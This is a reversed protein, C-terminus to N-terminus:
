KLIEYIKKIDLNQRMLRALNKFETEQYSEMNIYELIPTLGKLERLKNLFKRTFKPSDFLGHIYTGIINDKCILTFDEEETVSYKSAEGSTVGQHIECGSVVIGDFGELIGTCNCLTKSIQKTFKKEKMTTTMPFINLTEAKLFSSEIQKLDKISKGLMQFGSHIGLIPTGKKIYEMIKDTIKRTNIISFDYIANKSGPLIILDFDQNLDEKTNIYTLKVDEYVLLSTFDTSNSLKEFNIIAINLDKKPKEDEKSFNYSDENEIQIKTYPLIGLCPIDLNESKLKKDLMKIGDKLLDIDGRFKNIIYGKIRNRDKKELLMLTGYISAFVGGREIDAILIVNSDVMEAIGMNVLDTKRFNIEAPSGGGELVCIEFNEKLIDYNKKIIKKFFDYNEYYEKAQMNKFVIGELIVQSSFNDGTPKLLIPNMFAKPKTNAAEAQIVQARSMEKGDEDVSSNLAMNQSKFPAVKYGDQSFIRCLGATLITKGVSSGTGQLMIKKHM